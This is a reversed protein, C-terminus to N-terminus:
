KKSKKSKEGQLKLSKPLQCDEERPLSEYSVESRKIKIRKHRDNRSGSSSSSFLDNKKHQENTSLM